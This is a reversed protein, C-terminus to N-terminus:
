YECPWNGVSRSDTMDVDDSRINTMSKRGGRGGRESKKAPSNPGVKPSPPHVVHAGDVDSPSPPTDNSDKMIIDGLAEPGTPSSDDPNKAQAMSPEQPPTVLQVPITDDPLLFRFPSTSDENSREMLATFASLRAQARSVSGSASSVYSAVEAWEDINLFEGPKAALEGRNFPIPGLVSVVGTTLQHSDPCISCAMYGM